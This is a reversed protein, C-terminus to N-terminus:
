GVESLYLRLLGISTTAFLESELSALSYANMYGQNDILTDIAGNRLALIGAGETAIILNNQYQHLDLVSNDLEFRELTGSNDLSFLGEFESGIWLKEGDFELDMINRGAEWADDFPSIFQGGDWFQLGSLTGIWLSDGWTKQM